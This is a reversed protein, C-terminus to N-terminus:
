LGEAGLYYWGIEMFGGGVRRKKTALVGILLWLRFYKIGSSRGLKLM